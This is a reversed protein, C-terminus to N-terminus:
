GALRVSGRLRKTVIRAQEVTVYRRGSARIPSERSASRPRSDGENLPLEFVQAKRIRTRLSIMSNKDRQTLTGEIAHGARRARRAAIGDRSHDRACSWASTRAESVGGLRPRRSLQSEKGWKCKKRNPSYV